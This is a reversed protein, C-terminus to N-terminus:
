LVLVFAIFYSKFFYLICVGINYRCTLMYLSSKGSSLQVSLLFFNGQMGGRRTSHVSWFPQKNSLPNADLCTTRELLFM